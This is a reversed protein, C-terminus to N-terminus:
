KNLPSWLNFNSTTPLFGSEFPVLKPKSQMQKDGILYGMRMMTGKEFCLWSAIFRDKSIPALWPLYARHSDGYVITAKKDWTMGGDRSLVMKVDMHLLHPPTGAKDPTERDEDTVFICALNKESLRILCPALAMFDKKAPQFLVERERKTWSWTKGDDDSTVYRIVGAHPPETQVSEYACILKGKGLSVVTAMGDRSLHKTNYARSVTIPAEWAKTLKNFRRMQLWQHGPFGQDFPTKEDDYYCQLEGKANEFVYPAWLGRSPGPGVPESEFLTSHLKWTKGKDISESLRIAYDPVQHHNQRFAYLLHGNRRVLLNGDGIDAKPDDDEAITGLRNWTKGLDDSRMCVIRAKGDSVEHKAGLFSRSSIAVMGKGVPVIDPEKRWRIPQQTAMAVTLLALVM